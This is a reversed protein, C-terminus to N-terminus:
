SVRGLSRPAASGKGGAIIIVILTLVYPLLPALERPVGSGTVQLQIELAEAGGVGLCAIAAWAPRWGSLIVMALAIYGRGSSMDASFGGVSLSLQAGGAGALAGGVLGAAFRARSPSAGVAVLAEPRDGAARLRLGWRTHLMALPVLVAAAVALWFIPNSLVTNEFAPSPPSNAGEHFILQLLFRTGGLALLNLAVGVIVQDATLRLALGLQLAAVAMGALVGGAVGVYVNGSAYGVAAATFAGFLLKAELALDIVGARETVAGGMAALAYPIAIKLAQAGFATSAVAVFLESHTATELVAGAIAAAAVIVAAIRMATSGFAGAVVCAVGVVALAVGGTIWRELAYASGGYFLAGACLLVCAALALSAVRMLRATTM